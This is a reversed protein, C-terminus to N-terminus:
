IQILKLFIPFQRFTGSGIRGLKLTFEVAGIEGGEIGSIVDVLDLSNGYTWEELEGREIKM